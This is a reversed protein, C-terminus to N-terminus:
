SAESMKRSFYLQQVWFVTPKISGGRVFSFFSIKSKLVTYVSIRLQFDLICGYSCFICLRVPQFYFREGLPLSGKDEGLCWWSLVCLLSVWMCHPCLSEPEQHHRCLELCRVPVLLRRAWVAGGSAPPFDWHQGRPCDSRDPHLCHQDINPKSLISLFFLLYM